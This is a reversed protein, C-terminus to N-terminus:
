TGVLGCPVVFWFVLIMIENVGESIFAAPFPLVYQMIYEKGCVTPLSHIYTNM